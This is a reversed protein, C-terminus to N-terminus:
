MLILYRISQLINQKSYLFEYIKVCFEYSINPLLSSLSHRVGLGMDSSLWDRTMDYSEYTNCNQNPNSFENIFEFIIVILSVFLSQTKLHLLCNMLSIMENLTNIQSLYQGFNDMLHVYPPTQHKDINCTEWLLIISQLNLRFDFRL